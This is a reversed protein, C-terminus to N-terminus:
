EGAVVWVSVAASLVVLIPYTYVFQGELLVLLAMLFALQLLILVGIIVMRSFLINLIKRVSIKQRLTRRDHEREARTKM